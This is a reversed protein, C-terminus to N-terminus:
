DKLRLNKMSIDPRSWSSKPVEPYLASLSGGSFFLLWVEEDYQRLGFYKMKNFNFSVLSEQSVRLLGDGGGPQSPDGPLWSDAERYASVQPFLDQLLIESM